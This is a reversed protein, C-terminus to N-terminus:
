GIDLFDLEFGTRLQKQAQDTDTLMKLLVRKLDLFLKDMGPLKICVRRLPLFM